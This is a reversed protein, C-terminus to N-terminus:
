EIVQDATALLSPSIMLVLLRYALATILSNRPWARRAEDLLCGYFPREGDADATHWLVGVKPVRVAAARAGAMPWAM